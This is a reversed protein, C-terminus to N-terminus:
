AISSMVGILPLMVAILTAGVAVTLFAALQPEISDIASDLQDNADNFFIDSLNALVEDTSGSRTYVLLMRGYIPEFIENEAIAQGLSRPNDLDNMSSLATGLKARLAPHSVTDMAQQMAAEEQVGSAVYTSLANTFRSLALQYMAKKTVPIKEFFTSVKIRGQPSHALGWLVLTAITAILVVALAVWGIVLSVGVMGFSGSTLSGSMNAYTDTFIPLIWIVTFLLIVSMVCLLAAPYGVSNQLKAYTRHESEYYHGLSRLVRETRGSKEGVRVMEVAYDPFAGSSKMAEALDNGQTLKSYLHDCVRKFNSEERHESLMHVAEDTQVGAALMTAVSSCFASIASSELLKEAM